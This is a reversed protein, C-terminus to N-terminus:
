QNNNRIFIDKENPLRPKECSHFSYKASYLFNSIGMECGLLLTPVEGHETCTNAQLYVNHLHTMKYTPSCLLFIRTIDSAARHLKTYLCCWKLAVQQRWRWSIFVKLPLCCDVVFFSLMEYCSEKLDTPLHLSKWLRIIDYNSTHMLFRHPLTGWEIVFQRCLSM